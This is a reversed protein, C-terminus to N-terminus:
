SRGRLPRAPMLGLMIASLVLCISAAAFIPAFAEASINAAAAPERADLAHEAINIAIGSAVGVAGFVAVGISSGLARMFSLVGTAAGLDRPDVANQVSVTVTPYQQGSCMGALILVCEFEVLGISKARFALWALAMGAIALGMVPLRKYHELRGLMRGAFNAGAVTGVMYGVLGLGAESPTLGLALELFLPVFVTLGISAAMGFFLSSTALLVIRNGLVDLPILPEPARLLHRALVPLLVAGAALLGLVSPATWGFHPQPALALALLFMVTTMIVLLAGLADLRHERRQWPLRKLAQSAFSLAIAALPLNLWFIVQWSLHETIIGGLMPGAISATAWTIAIYGAIKGRERPPYLDGIVTQALAMLGGGGLGQVARGLVLVWMSTALACIISGGVFIAVAAFLTPRRGHIDAIKGYLPTTATAALFYASVIWSIYSSGGLAASMAPIVPAVITQDLAALLMCILVGIVIRVRDAERVATEAAPRADNMTEGTEEEM